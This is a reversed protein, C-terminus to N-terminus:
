TMEKGMRDISRSTVHHRFDKENGSTRLVHDSYAGEDSGKQCATKTVQKEDCSKMM